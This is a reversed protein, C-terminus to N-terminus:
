GEYSIKKLFEANRTSIEKVGGWFFNEFVNNRMEQFHM